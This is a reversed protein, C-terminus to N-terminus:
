GSNFHRSETAWVMESRSVIEAASEIFEDLSSALIPTWGDDEFGTVAPFRKFRVNKFGASLAALEAFVGGTININFERNPYSRYSGDSCQETIYTQSVIESSIKDARQELELLVQSLLDEKSLEHLKELNTLMINTLNAADYAGPQFGSESVLIGRNAGIQSVIDRLAHIKEKTIAKKWLKCEVVWIQPIGFSTFEVFVDVKHNSRVGNVIHEIAVSCGLNKFLDAVKEQYEKWDM